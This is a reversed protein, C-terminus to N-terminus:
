ARRSTSSLGVYRIPGRRDPVPASRNTEAELACGPCFHDGVGVWHGNCFREGCGDCVFSLHECGARCLYVECSPHACNTCEISHSGDENGDVGCFITQCNTCTANMLHEKSETGRPLQAESDARHYELSTSPGFGELAAMLKTAKRPSSACIRCNRFCGRAGSAAPISTGRRAACCALSDRLSVSRLITTRWSRAQYIPTTVVQSALIM